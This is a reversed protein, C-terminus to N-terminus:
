QCVKRVTRSRKEVIATQVCSKAVHDWREGAGEEGADDLAEVREVHVAKAVEAGQRGYGLGEFGDCLRVQERDNRHVVRLVAPDAAEQGEQSKELCRRAFILRRRCRRRLFSPLGPDLPLLSARLRLSRLSTWLHSRLADFPDVRFRLVVEDVLFAFPGGALSEIGARLAKEGDKGFSRGEGGVRRLEVEVTDEFAASGGASDVAYESKAGVDLRDLEHLMGAAVRVVLASPPRQENQLGDRRLPRAKMRQDDAACADGVRLGNEMSEGAHRGELLEFDLKGVVIVEVFPIARPVAVVEVKLKLAEDEAGRRGGLQEAVQRARRARGKAGDADGEQAVLVVKGSEGLELPDDNGSTLVADNHRREGRERLADGIELDALRRRNAPQVTPHPFVLALVLPRVLEVRVLHFLQVLPLAVLVFLPPLLAPRVPVLLLDVVPERAHQGADRPVDLVKAQGLEEVIVLELLDEAPESSRGEEWVQADELYGVRELVAVEILLIQLFPLHVLHPHLTLLQGVDAGFPADQEPRPVLIQLLHPVVLSPGAPERTPRQPPSRKYGIQM